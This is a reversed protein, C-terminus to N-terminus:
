KYKRLDYLNLVDIQINDLNSHATKNHVKYSKIQKPKM